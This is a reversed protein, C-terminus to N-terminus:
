VHTNFILTIHRLNEEGHTEKFTFVSFLGMMVMIYIHINMMPFGLSSSLLYQESYYVYYFM